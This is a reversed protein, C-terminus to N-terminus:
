NWEDYEQDRDDCNQRVMLALHRFNKVAPLVTLLAIQDTFDLGEAIFEGLHTVQHVLLAERNIVELPAHWGRSQRWDRGILVQSSLRQFERTYDGTAGSRDLALSTEM